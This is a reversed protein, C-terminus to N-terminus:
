SPRTALAQSNVRTGRDYLHTYLTDGDESYTRTLGNRKGATFNAEAKVLGSPYYQMTLGSLEGNRYNWDTKLAGNPYYERTLGDRRGESFVVEM